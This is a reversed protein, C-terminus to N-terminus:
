PAIEEQREWVQTRGLLSIGLFGRVQLKKGGYILEMKSSYTKGNNPDMIKGGAWKTDSDKKIWM